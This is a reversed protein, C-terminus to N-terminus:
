KDSHIILYWLRFIILYLGPSKNKKEIFSNQRIKKEPKTNKRMEYSDMLTPDINMTLIVFVMESMIKYVAVHWVNQNAFLRTFIGLDNQFM